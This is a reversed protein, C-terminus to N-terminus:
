RIVVLKSQDSFKRAVHIVKNGSYEQKREFKKRKRSLLNNAVKIVRKLVSSGDLSFPKKKKGDNNYPTPESISVM